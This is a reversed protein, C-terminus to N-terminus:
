WPNKLDASTYSHDRVFFYSEGDKQVMMTKSPNMLRYLLAFPTLVLYYLVFLLIRSVVEGMALGLNLWAWSVVGGVPTIFLGCVLLIAALPLLFSWQFFFSLGVCALALVANSELTKKKADELKMMILVVYLYITSRRVWEVYRAFSGVFLSLSHNANVVM